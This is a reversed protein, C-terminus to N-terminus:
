ETNIPMVFFKKFKKSFKRFDPALRTKVKGLEPNRVFIILANNM